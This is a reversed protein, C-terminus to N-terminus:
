AVIQGVPEVIFGGLIVRCGLGTVIRCRVQISMQATKDYVIPESFYGVTEQLSVLQQLDFVALTNGAAPGRRFTLLSVPMPVTEVTVKYFAVLKNNALIPSASGAFVTYDQELVNLAASIWGDSTAAFDFLPQPQRVVMESRATAIGITVARNIAQEECKQRYAKIDTVTLESSPILYSM